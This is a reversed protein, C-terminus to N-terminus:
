ETSGSVSGCCVCLLGADNLLGNGCLREKVEEVGWARGLVIVISSGVDLLAELEVVLETLVDLLLEDGAGDVPESALGELVLVELVEVLALEFILVILVLVLEAVVTILVLLRVILYFSIWGVCNECSDLLNESRRCLVWAPPQQTCASSFMQKSRDEEIIDGPM